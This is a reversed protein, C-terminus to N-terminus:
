IINEKNLFMKPAKNAKCWKNCGRSILNNTSGNMWISSLYDLKQLVRLLYGSNYTKNIKSQGSKVKSKPPISDVVSVNLKQEEQISASILKEHINIKITKM